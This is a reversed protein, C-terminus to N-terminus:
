KQNTYVVRGLLDYIAIGQIAEESSKVFVGKDKTVVIVNNVLGEFGPNSLIENTYRLVFVRILHERRLLM